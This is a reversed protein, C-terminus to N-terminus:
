RSTLSRTKFNPRCDGTRRGPACRFARGATRVSVRGGRGKKDCGASTHSVIRREAATTGPFLRSDCIRHMYVSGPSLNGRFWKRMSGMFGGHRTGDGEGGCVQPLAPYLLCRKRLLTIVIDADRRSSFTLFIRPLFILPHQSLKQLLRPILTIRWFVCPYAM